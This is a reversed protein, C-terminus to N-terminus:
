VRAIQPLHDFHRDRARLALNHQLVLVALWM